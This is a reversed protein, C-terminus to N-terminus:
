QATRNGFILLQFSREVVVKLGFARRREISHFFLMPFPLALAVFHLHGLLSMPRFPDGLEFGIGLPDTMRCSQLGTLEAIVLIVQEEADLGIAAEAVARM